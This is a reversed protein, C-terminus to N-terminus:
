ALPLVWTRVWSFFSESHLVCVKTEAPQGVHLTRFLGCGADLQSEVAEDPFHQRIRRPLGLGVHNGHNASIRLDGSDACGDGHSVPEHHFSRIYLWDSYTEFSVRLAEFAGYLQSSSLLRQAMEDAQRFLKSRAVRRRT